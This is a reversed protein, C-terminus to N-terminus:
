MTKITEAFITKVLEGTLFKHLPELKNKPEGNLKSIDDMCDELTKLESPTINLNTIDINEIKKDTSKLIENFEEIMQDTHSSMRVFWYYSNMSVCIKELLSPIDDSRDLHNDSIETSHYRHGHCPADAM